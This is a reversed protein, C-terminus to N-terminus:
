GAKRWNEGNSYIQVSGAAPLDLEDDGGVTERGQPTIVVRQPTDDERRITMQQWPVSKASPLMLLVGAESANIIVYDFAQDLAATFPHPLKGPQAPAVQAAVYKVAPKPAPAAPALAKVEDEPAPAAPAPAKGEAKPAPAPTTATAIAARARIDATIIIAVTLLAAAVIIGTSLYAAVVISPADKAKNVNFILLAAGGAAGILTAVGGVRTVNLSNSTVPQVTSSDSATPATSGASGKNLLGVNELFRTIRTVSSGAERLTNAGGYIM